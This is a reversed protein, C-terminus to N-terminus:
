QRLFRYPGDLAGWVQNGQADWGQDLSLMKDAQLLVESTAYAAGGITSECDTGETTGLFIGGQIEELWVACGDREVLNETQLAIAEPNDCGGVLKAAKSSTFAYVVSVVRGDELDDVVYLRQRYPQSLSEMSAQEVYLIREGMEPFDVICTRLSIAYYAPNSKSQKESNFDGVLLAAVQDAATPEPGLTASDATDQPLDTNQAACGAFLVLFMWNKM